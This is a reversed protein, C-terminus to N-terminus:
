AQWVDHSLDMHLLTGVGHSRGKVAWPCLELISDTFAKPGMLGEPRFVQRQFWFTYAPYLLNEARSSSFNELHRKAQGIFVRGEPKHIIFKAVFQSLIDYAYVRDPKTSQKWGLQRPTKATVYAKESNQQPFARAILARVEDRSVFPAESGCKLWANFDTSKLFALKQAVGTVQKQTLPGFVSAHRAEIQFKPRCLGQFSLPVKYSFDIPIYPAIRKFFDSTSSQRLVLSLGLYTQNEARFQTVRWVFGRFVKGNYSEPRSFSNLFNALRQLEFGPFNCLCLCIRNIGRLDRDSDKKYALLGDWIFLEATFRNVSDTDPMLANLIDDPPTLRKKTGYCWSKLTSFWPDTKTKFVCSFYWVQTQNNFHARFKPGAVTLNPNLLYFFENHLNIYNFRNGFGFQVYKGNQIASGDTMAYGLLRIKLEPSLSLATSKVKPNPRLARAQYNYSALTTYQLWWFLNERATSGLRAFLKKTVSEVTANKQRAFAPLQRAVTTFMMNRVAEKQSLFREFEIPLTEITLVEKPQISM